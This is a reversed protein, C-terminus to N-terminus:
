PSTSRRNAAILVAGVGAVVVGFILLPLLTAGTFPLAGDDEEAAEPATTTPEDQGGPGAQDGDEGGQGDDEGGQSGGAGAPLAALVASRTEDLQALIAPLASDLAGNVQALLDVVANAAANVEDIDAGPACAENLAGVATDRARKVDASARAITVAADDAATGIVADLDAFAAEADGDDKAAKLATVFRQVGVRLSGVVEAASAEFRSGLRDVSARLQDLAAKRAAADLECGPQGQAPTEEALAAATVELGAFEDRVQQALATLEPALRQAQEQAAEVREAVSSPPAAVAAAAGSVVMLAAGLLAIVVKRSV